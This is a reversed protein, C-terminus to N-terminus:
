LFYDTSLSGLEEPSLTEYIIDYRDFMRKIDDDILKAEEESQYRGVTDYQLTRSIMINRAPQLLQNHLDKILEFYSDPLYPTYKEAYMIGLLIPSDTVVYDVRDKLRVLNRYQKITVYPQIELTKNREEWVFDKAVETVLEVNIRQKKMRTFLSAAATSKGTGPGGFFNIYTTM